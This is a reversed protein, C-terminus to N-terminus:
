KLVLLRVRQEVKQQENLRLLWLVDCEYAHLKAWLLL